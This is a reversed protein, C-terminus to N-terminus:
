VAFKHSSFPGKVKKKMLAGDNVEMKEDWGSDLLTDMTRTRRDCWGDGEPMVMLEIPRRRM